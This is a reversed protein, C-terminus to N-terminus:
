MPAAHEQKSRFHGYGVLQATVRSGREGASFDNEIVAVLALRAPFIDEPPQSDLLRGAEHDACARREKKGQGREADDENVLFVIGREFLFVVNGILGLFYGPEPSGPFVGHQNESGGSGIELGPVSGLVVKQRNEGQRM